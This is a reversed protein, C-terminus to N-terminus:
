NNLKSYNLIIDFSVDSSIIDSLTTTISAEVTRSIGDVVFNNVDISRIISFRNQIAQLIPYLSEESIQNEKKTFGAIAEKADNMSHYHGLVGSGDSKETEYVGLEFYRKM